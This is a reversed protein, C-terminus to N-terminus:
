REGIVGVEELSDYMHEIVDNSFLSSTIRDRYKSFLLEGKQTRYVGSYYEIDLM